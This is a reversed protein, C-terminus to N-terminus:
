EVILQGISWPHEKCIYTYTGPQDFSLTASEGPKISGTSWAGGRATMTHAMRGTNTWTVMTGSKVIVRTPRVGYEDHWPENVGSDPNTQTIVTGLRVNSVTEVLAVFPQETPPPGAPARPALKGDLAFAWLDRDMLAAIFQRGGVEYSIVPGSAPGIAGAPGNRGVQFVWLSEGTRGDYAHM